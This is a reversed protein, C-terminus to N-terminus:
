QREPFEPQAKPALRPTTILVIALVILSGALLLSKPLAEGLVLWGLVVAIVPNVYAYTSVRAPTSVQLLWVYAPFGVLSGFVTLYAFAYASKPTIQHLDFGPLEGMMVGAVLLLIGGAIMQMSIALLASTSKRAYRSFVSGLAWCLSAFLLVGAGVPDVVSHGLRDRSCVMLAVGVFGLGLGVFVLGHPKTGNPRLWDILNIWLPTAAIILAAMNTPVTKEAWSVGGNGVLLLLAGVISADRWQVASSRPAGCIRMVSYLAIGATLFRAGSMTLPPISDIALRIGLYTSGWIVYVAAFAAVILWLPPKQRSSSDACPQEVSPPKATQQTSM